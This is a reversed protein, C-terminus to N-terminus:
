AMTAGAYLHEARADFPVGHLDPVPGGSYDPVFAADRWQKPDGSRSPAALLVIRSDSSRGARVEVLGEHVPPLANPREAAVPTM